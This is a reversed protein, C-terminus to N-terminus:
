PAAPAPFLRAPATRLLVRLYKLYERGVLKLVKPDSAWNAVNAYDSVVPYPYLTVGPLAATLEAMARPMHYNSTVVILPGKLGRAAMWDRTERANGQTDQARYGLDVCCAFLDKSVPLLRAIDAGQTARNVGTILLRRAQGRALLGAADLVRDAGGTLAVVGEAQVVLLAEERELSQAFGIFGALLASGFFGAACVCVLMAAAGRGRRMQRPTATNADPSDM